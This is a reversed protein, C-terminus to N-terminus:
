ILMVAWTVWAILTGKTPFGLDIVAGIVFPISWLMMQKGCVRRMKKKKYKKREEDSKMNHATLLDAAKGGSQYFLIGILFFIAAMALDFVICFKKITM